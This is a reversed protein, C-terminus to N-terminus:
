RCAAQIDGLVRVLDAERRCTAVFCRVTGRNLQAEWRALSDGLAARAERSGMTGCSCSPPVGEGGFCRGTDRRALLLWDM